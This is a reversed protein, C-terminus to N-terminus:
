KEQISVQIKNNHNTTEKKEQIIISSKEFKHSSLQM